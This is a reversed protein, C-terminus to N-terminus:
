NCQEEEVPLTSIWIVQWPSFLNLSKINSHSVLIPCSISSLHLCIKSRRELETRFSNQRSFFGNRLCLLREIRLRGLVSFWTFSTYHPTANGEKGVCRSPRSTHHCHEEGKRCQHSVPYTPYPTTNRQRGVSISQSSLHPSQEERKRCQHVSQLPTTIKGGGQVVPQSSLHPSLTGRGGWVAPQNSLHPSQEGEM